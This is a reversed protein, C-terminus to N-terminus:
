KIIAVYVSTVDKAKVNSSAVSLTLSTGAVTGTASALEADSSGTLSLYVTGGSCANAIGDVTVNRVKHGLGANYAVDYTVNVGDSDCSSVVSDGAGLNPTVVGLSAAAGLGFTVLAVLVFVILLNRLM